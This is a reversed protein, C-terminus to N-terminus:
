HYCQRSFQCVLYICFFFELLSRERVQFVRYNTQGRFNEVFSPVVTDSTHLPHTLPPCLLLPSRPERAPKNKTYEFRVVAVDLALIIRRAAGRFSSNRKGILMKELNLSTSSGSLRRVGRRNIHSDNRGWVMWSSASQSHHCWRGVILFSNRRHFRVTCSLHRRM